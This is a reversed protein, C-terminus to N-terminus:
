RVRSKSLPPKLARRSPERAPSLPLGRVEKVCGLKETLKALSAKLQASRANVNELIKDDEIAQLVANAAACALPNGGYTSAHMGTLCPDSLPPTKNRHLLRTCMSTVILACCGPSWKRRASAHAACRAGPQFVNCPDKCLMAGIPVGGGLAKASTLVDVDVGLVQHGWFKGSRCVGTQVEDVMLLADHQADARLFRVASLVTTRRGDRHARVRAATCPRGRAQPSTHAPRVEDCLQRAAQFFQVTGPRIGGEGQLPELMIAALRPAPPGIPLIKPKTLKAVLEKLEDIDNYTM